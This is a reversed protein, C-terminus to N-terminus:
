FPNNKSTGLLGSAVEPSPSDPPFNHTTCVSKFAEYSITGCATADAVTGPRLVISM